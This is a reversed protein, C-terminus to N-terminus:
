VSTPAHQCKSVRDRQYPHRLRGRADFCIATPKYILPERAFVRAEFGEPLQLLRQTDGTPGEATVAQVLVACFVVAGGVVDLRLARLIQELM